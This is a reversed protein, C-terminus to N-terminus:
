RPPEAAGEEMARIERSKLAMAVLLTEMEAQYRTEDTGGRTAQLAEVQEQIELRQQYLARLAPDDPLGAIGAGDGASIFLTRAM